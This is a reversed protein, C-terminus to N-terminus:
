GIAGSNEQIHRPNFMSCLTISKPFDAAMRFLIDKPHEGVVRHRFPSFFINPSDRRAELVDSYHEAGPSNDFQLLDVKDLYSEHEAWQKMMIALGFSRIKGQQKLKSAASLLDDIRAVSGTPEHIFFFDVYDTGLERLSVELSKQMAEPTLNIRRHFLSAIKAKANSTPEGTPQSAQVRPAQDKRLKLSRLLPKLPALIAAMETAQIGFKTAITIEERNGRLFKGVFGEAQGYGYSRALDFHTIGSDLATALALRATEADVAGLIPACGFGLASTHIGPLIEIRKM